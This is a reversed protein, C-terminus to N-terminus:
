PNVMHATKLLAPLSELINFQFDLARQLLWFAAIIVICASGPKMVGAPYFPRRSLLLIGPLTLGVVALQGVEVGLNFGLLSIFRQSDPLAMGLLVSAIGMGHILGFGFALGGRYNVLVPYINNLAAFVVSAAIASEVWRAPLTIVHLVTLSLTISHALTFATVVTLVDRVVASLRTKTQWDSRDRQLASPLLLSILFLLHDFGTWIHRIGEGIFGTVAQWNNSTTSSLKFAYRGHEPSFIHTATGSPAALTLLGRHQADFDFFLHYILVLQKANSPCLAQFELVAYHGDTHEDVLLDGPILRCNELDAAIDLRQLAYAYIAQRHQNLEAWTIRSDDNSDLGIAYDLDRLAIDWQGKITNQAVTLKLYSDSPKHALASTSASILLFLMLLRMM